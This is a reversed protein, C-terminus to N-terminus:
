AFTKIGDVIKDRTLDPFIPYDHDSDSTAVFRRRRKPQLDHERM